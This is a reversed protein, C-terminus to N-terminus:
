TRIPSVLPESLAADAQERTIKGRQIMLDLVVRRRALVSRASGSRPQVSRSHGAVAAARGVAVGRRTDLDRANKGFYTQAAAEIGYAVNGYYITNLYMELIADKAYERTM